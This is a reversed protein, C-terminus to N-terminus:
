LNLLKSPAARFIVLAEKWNWQCEPLPQLQDLISLRWEWDEIFQRSKAVRWELVQKGAAEVTSHLMNGVENITSPLSQRLIELLFGMFSILDKNADDSSTRSIDEWYGSCNEFLIKQTLNVSIEDLYLLSKVISVM